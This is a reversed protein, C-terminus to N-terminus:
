QHYQLNLFKKLYHYQIKLLQYVINKKSKINTKPKKEEQTTLVKRNTRISNQSNINKEM